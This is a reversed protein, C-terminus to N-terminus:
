QCSQQILSTVSGLMGAGDGLRLRPDFFGQRENPLHRCLGTYHFARLWDRMRKGSSHDKIQRGFTKSAVPSGPLKIKMHHRGICDQSILANRQALRIIDRMHKGIQKGSRHRLM